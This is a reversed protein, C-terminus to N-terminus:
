IYKSTTINFNSQIFAIVSTYQKNIIKIEGVISLLRFWKFPSEM